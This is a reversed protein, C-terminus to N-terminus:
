WVQYSCPPKVSRGLRQAPLPIGCKIPWGDHSRCVHHASGNLESMFPRNRIPLPVARGGRHGHSSRAEHGSSSSSCSAWPPV